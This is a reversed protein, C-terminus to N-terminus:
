WVGKKRIRPLAKMGVLLSALALLSVSGPEPVTVLQVNDLAPGYAGPTLSTFELRYTVGAQATITPTTTTVWQMNNLTRGNSSLTYTGLTTLSGSAPGFDVRVSKDGSFDPNASMAFRIAWSGSSDFTFDQYIAGQSEGDLDVSQIGDATQWYTQLLDISGSAVVWGFGTVPPSTSFFTTGGPVTVPTEFSGNIIGAGLPAATILYIPLLIILRNLKM